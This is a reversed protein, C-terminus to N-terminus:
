VGSRQAKVLDLFEAIANRVRDPLEIFELGSHYTVIDQDVDSIHSHVVRAKVVVPLSGLTLRMEHLSNLHLPVRTDVALGKVSLQTVSMPEFVMIEGTLQGLMPVREAERKIAM